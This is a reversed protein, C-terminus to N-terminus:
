FIYTYWILIQGEDKNHLAVYMDGEMYTSRFGPTSYAECDTTRNPGNWDAPIKTVLEQVVNGGTAVRTLGLRAIVADTVNRCAHIRCIYEANLGWDSIRYVDVRSADLGADLRLEALAPPWKDSDPVFGPPLGRFPSLSVNDYLYRGGALSLAAFLTFLMMKRISYRM